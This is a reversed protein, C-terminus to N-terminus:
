SARGMKVTEHTRHDAGADYIPSGDPNRARIYPAPRPKELPKGTRTMHGDLLWSFVVRQEVGSLRNLPTATACQAMLEDLHPDSM